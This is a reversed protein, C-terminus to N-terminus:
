DSSKSTSTLWLLGDMLRRSALTANVALLWSSPRFATIRALLPLPLLALVRVINILRNTIWKRRDSLKVIPSIKIKIKRLRTWTVNTVTM